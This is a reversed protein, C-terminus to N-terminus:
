FACATLGRPTSPGMSCLTPPESILFLRLSQESPSMSCVGSVWRFMYVCVIALDAEQSGIVSM